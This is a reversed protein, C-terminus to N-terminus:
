VRGPARPPGAAHGLRHKKRKRARGANNNNSKSNSNSNNNTTSSSSNNGEERELGAVEAASRSIGRFAGAGLTEMGGFALAGSLVHLDAESMAPDSHFYASFRQERSAAGLGPTPPLPAYGRLHINQTNTASCIGNPVAIYIHFVGKRDVDVHVRIGMKIM